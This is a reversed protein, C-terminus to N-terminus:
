KNTFRHLRLMAKLEDITKTDGTNFKEARKLRKLIEDKPLLPTVENAKQPKNDGTQKKVDKESKDKSKQKKNTKVQDSTEHKDSGSSGVSSRKKGKKQDTDATTSVVPINFRAARSKKKEEFSLLDSEEIKAEKKDPKLATSEKVPVVTKKADKDSLASEAKNTETSVKPHEVKRDETVQEVKSASISENSTKDAKSVKVSQNEELKEPSPVPAAIEEEMGFEEEDLRAQLRNVLDAKLGDTPLGRKALAERLESVSRIM